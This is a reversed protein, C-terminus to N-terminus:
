EACQAGLHKLTFNEDEFREGYISRGGAFERLISQWASCLLM